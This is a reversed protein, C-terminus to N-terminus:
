GRWGEDVIATKRFAGAEARQTATLSKKLRRCTPSAGAHTILQWAKITFEMEPPTNARWRRMITESPPQYFTQQVEVLPFWRSYEAIAISFGCLGIKLKCV